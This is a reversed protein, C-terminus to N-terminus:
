VILRICCGPPSQGRPVGQRPARGRCQGGRGRLGRLFLHDDGLTAGFLFIGCGIVALVAGGVVHPRVPGRVRAALIWVGLLGGLCFITTMVGAFLSLQFASSRSIDFETTVAGTAPDQFELNGTAWILFYSGAGIAFCTACYGLSAYGLNRLSM